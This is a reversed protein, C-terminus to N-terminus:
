KYFWDPASRRKWTAIKSKEKIYYNRYSAVADNNIKYENPMCLPPDFWSEKKSIKKPPQHLAKMLTSTKHIKDYRFFYESLMCIGYTHLWSYQEIGSRAWIASPHNKHTAKYLRVENIFGDCSPDTVWHATSLLQATELIM